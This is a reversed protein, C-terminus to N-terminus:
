IYNPTMDVLLDSTQFYPPNTPGPNFFTFGTRWLLECLYPTWLAAPYAATTASIALSGNIYLQLVFPQTVDAAYVRMELEVSSGAYHTSGVAVGPSIDLFVNPAGPAVITRYIFRVGPM